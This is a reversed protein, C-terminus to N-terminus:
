AGVRGLQELSCPRIPRPRRLASGRDLQRGRRPSIRATWTVIDSAYSDLVVSNANVSAPGGSLQRDGPLCSKSLVRTGDSLLTGAEGQGTGVEARYTSNAVFQYADKGDVAETNLLAVKTSSNVTMPPEEPQVKLSLATDNTGSNNNQVEFM